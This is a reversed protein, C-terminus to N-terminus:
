DDDELMAKEASGRVQEAQAIDRAIAREAEDLSVILKPIQNLATTYSNLTYLPKGKDDTAALNIEKIYIRLKDMAFRLDEALLASSSKFSAYFKQAEQVVKDPKWGEKMGQGIRIQQDRVDRDVFTQYDSRPDEMFYIYGLEQLAITKDRTKDRKWITKFPTLLMAEESIHLQYGEYKFLKM